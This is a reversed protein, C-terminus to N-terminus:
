LRTLGPRLVDSASGVINRLLDVGDAELGLRPEGNPLAADVVMVAGTGHMRSERVRTIEDFRLADLNAVLRIVASSAFGGGATESYHVEDDAADLGVDALFM